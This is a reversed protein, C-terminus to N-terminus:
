SLLFLGIAVRLASLSSLPTLGLGQRLSVQCGTRFVSMFCSIEGIEAVGLTRSEGLLCVIGM